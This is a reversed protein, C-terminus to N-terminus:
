LESIGGFHVTEAGLPTTIAGFFCVIAWFDYVVVPAEKNTDNLLLSAWNPSTVARPHTILLTPLWANESM